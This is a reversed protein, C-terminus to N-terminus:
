CKLSNEYLMTLHDFGNDLDKIQLDILEWFGQLDQQTIKKNKKDNENDKTDNYVAILSEFQRFKGSILLKTKGVVAAFEENIAEHDYTNSDNISIDKLRDEWVHCLGLLRTSHYSVSESLIIEPKQNSNAETSEISSNNLYNNNKERINVNSHKRQCINLNWTKRYVILINQYQLRLIGFIYGMYEYLILLVISIVGM